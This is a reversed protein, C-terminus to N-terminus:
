PSCVVRADAWDAHDYYPNDGADTVVLRLQTAGMLPVSVSQSASTGTMTGSDFRLIDDVFVQFVVSGLAGV